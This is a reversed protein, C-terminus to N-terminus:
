GQAPIRVTNRGPILRVTRATTGDLNYITETRADPSYIVLTNGERVVRLESGDYDVSEIGSMGGRPLSVAIESVAVPSTAYLTSPELTVTEDEEGAPVFATGTSNLLYTESAPRETASYTAHLSFNKGEVSIEAPTAPVKIGKATLVVKGDQETFLLYPVNAKIATASQLDAGDAALTYLLNGKAVTADADPTSIVLAKGEADTISTVDFPVTVGTWEGGETEFTVTANDALTFAHPIALPHGAIFRMNGAASYIRGERTVTSGDPLQETVTGTSTTLFNGEASPAAVGNDLVIICNPNIGAFAQPDIGEPARSARSRAMSRSAPAAEADAGVLLTITTLNDCGEFAGAGISAISTLRITELSHCDKFAGEGIVGVSSPIDVSELSTCGEFMGASIEQVKPLSVTTLETMGKFTEAPLEGEFESLDLRELNKFSKLANDLQEAPIEGTLAISTIASSEEPNIAALESANLTAGDTPVAFIKIEKGANVIDLNYYGEDDATLEQQGSMVRAELGESHESSFGVRFRVSSNEAVDKLVPALADTKDFSEFRNGDANEVEP